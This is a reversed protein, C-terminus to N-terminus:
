SEEALTETVERSKKRLVEEFIAILERANAEWTYKRATQAAKEGIQTRFQKDNYLRRIMAALTPADTPDALILGDSRDTIIESVGCAASVIVPLGCSMAEFPPLSYADELSPGAYADAAAYYFEVDKRPPLLRVRDELGRRMILARSCAANEYGVVLLDVPLDGLHALADLLAPGGKNRWDNGVLLATFRDPPIRLATRAAERLSARRAPRFVDHDLGAYLVPFKERRGYFQGLSAAIRRSILVLVTKHNSYVRRELWIVLQYYLKRHLLRPWFRVLNRRFKLEQDNQRLYEAFVVHVSIIDADLCNAGPSFVLDHRLDRFRRDWMRWLHNAALWWLFNFLHPGPLKPIRHWVMRGLDVDAVQQSYLHIDFTDALHAIWEAVRRETGHGKDIFPSVVAVRPKAKGDNL